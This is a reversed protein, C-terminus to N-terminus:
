SLGVCRETSSASPQALRCRPPKFALRSNRSERIPWSVQWPATIQDHCCSQGFLAKDELPRAAARFRPRKQRGLGRTPGAGRGAAEPHPKDGLGSSRVADAPKRRLLVMPRMAWRLNHQGVSGNRRRGETSVQRGKTYSEGFLLLIELDRVIRLIGPPRASPHHSLGPRFALAMSVPEEIASRSRLSVEDRSSQLRASIRSEKPIGHVANVTLSAFPPL